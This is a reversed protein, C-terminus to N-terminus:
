RSSRRSLLKAALANLESGRPTSVGIRAVSVPKTVIVRDSTPGFIAIGDYARGNEVYEVQKISIVDKWNLALTRESSAGAGVLKIGRDDAVIVVLTSALPSDLSWPSRDGSLRPLRAPFAFASPYEQKARSYASKLPAWYREWVVLGAAVGLLGLPIGIAMGLVRTSVGDQITRGVMVACFVLIVAFTTFRVLRAHRELWRSIWRPANPDGIRIVEPQIEDM